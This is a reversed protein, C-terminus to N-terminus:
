KRPPLPNLFDFPLPDRAEKSPPPIILIHRPHLYSPMLRVTDTHSDFLFVAVDDSSLSLLACCLIIIAPPSRPYGYTTMLSNVSIFTFSTCKFSYIFFTAPGHFDCNSYYRSSFFAGYLKQLLSSKPFSVPALLFVPVPTSSEGRSHPHLFSLRTTLFNTLGLLLNFTVM